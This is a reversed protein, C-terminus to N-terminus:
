NDDGAEIGESECFDLWEEELENWIRDLEDRNHFESMTCIFEDKYTVYGNEQRYEKFDM